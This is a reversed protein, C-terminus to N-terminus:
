EGDTIEKARKDRETQEVMSLAVSAVQIAEKEWDLESHDDNGFRHCLIAAALEGVEEVLITLWEPLSHHQEGWLEDQRKREDRIKYLWDDSYAKEARAKYEDREATMAALQRRLCVTSERGGDFTGCEYVDSAPCRESGCKPCTESKAM